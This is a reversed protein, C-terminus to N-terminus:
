LYSQVYLVSGQIHVYIYLDEKYTYITAERSFSYFGVCKEGGSCVKLHPTAPNCSVLRVGWEDNTSCVPRKSIRRKRVYTYKGLYFYQCWKPNKADVSRLAYHILKKFVSCISELKFNLKGTDSCAHQHQDQEFRLLERTQFLFIMWKETFMFM